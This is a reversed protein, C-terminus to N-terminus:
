TAHYILFQWEFSKRKLLIVLLKVIRDGGLITENYYFIETVQDNEEFKHLLPEHNIIEKIGVNLVSRIIQM